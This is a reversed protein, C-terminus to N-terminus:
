AICSAKAIFFVPTEHARRIQDLCLRIVQDTESEAKTIGWRLDVFILEVQRERCRKQLEPLVQHVIHEREGQM